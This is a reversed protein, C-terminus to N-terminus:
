IGDRTCERNFVAVTKQLPTGILQSKCYKLLERYQSYIKLILVQEPRKRRINKPYTWFNRRVQESYIIPQKPVSSCAAVPLGEKNNWVQLRVKFRLDGVPPEAYPIGLFARIHRGNHTTLHRGVLSGPEINVKLYDSTRGLVTESCCLTLFVSIFPKLNM